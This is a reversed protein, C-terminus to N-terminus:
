RGIQILREWEAQDIPQGNKYYNVQGTPVEIQWRETVTEAYLVPLNLRDRVEAKTLVGQSLHSHLEALRARIDIRPPATVEPVSVKPMVVAAIPMGALAGLFGRRGIM